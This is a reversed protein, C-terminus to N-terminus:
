SACLRTFGVASPSSTLVIDEKIYELVLSFFNTKNKKSKRSLRNPLSNVKKKIM